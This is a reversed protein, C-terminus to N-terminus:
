IRSVVEEPQACCGPAQLILALVGKLTKTHSNMSCLSTVGGPIVKELGKSVGM